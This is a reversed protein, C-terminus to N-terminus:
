KTTRIKYACFLALISESILTVLKSSPCQFGTRFVNALRSPLYSGQTCKFQYHSWISRSIFVHRRVGCVINEMHAAQIVFNRKSVEDSLLELFFFFKRGPITVKSNDKFNFNFTERLFVTVKAMYFPTHKTLFCSMRDHWVSTNERRATFLLLNCQVNRFYNMIYSM